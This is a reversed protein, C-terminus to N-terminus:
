VGSPEDVVTPRPLEGEQIYSTGKKSLRVRRFRGLFVTNSAQLVVALVTGLERRMAGKPPPKELAVAKVLERM